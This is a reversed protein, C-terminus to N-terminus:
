QKKEMLTKVIGSARLKEFAVKTKEVVIDPTLRSYAMYMGTSMEDLTYGKELNDCSFNAEKCLSTTDEEPLPVLDVQGSLLKRFNDLQEASVVLRTFGQEKLYQHGVDDRLVGVRFRGADMLSDVKVQRDKLKYLHFKIRMIEGAWKFQQERAPTRAILYILVNPEQLAMDYSRAWPYLSIRFDNLGAAKLSKQVVQTAAGVVKGGELFSHSTAETVVNITQAQAHAGPVSLILTLLVLSPVNM